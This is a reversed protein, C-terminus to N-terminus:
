VWTRYRPYLSCILAPQLVTWVISVKAIYGDSMFTDFVTQKPKRSATSALLLNNPKIDRHVIRLKHLHKVGEVVQRLITKSAELVATNSIGNSEMRSKIHGILDHLSMDCLELALYVFDGRVEKMFYRVVNPHGDSEILLSIERDASANYTKLMRKVAVQRNDLTGAYVVTGGGGHGLVITEDVQIVHDSNSAKRDRRRRGLEFSAVLLFLLLPPLWHSILHRSGPHRKQAQASEDIPSPGSEVPPRYPVVDSATAISLCTDDHQQSGTDCAPEADDEDHTSPGVRAPAVERTDYDVLNESGTSILPMAFLQGSGKIAGQITTTRFRDSNFTRGASLDAVMKVPMIRGTGSDMAAAVPHDLKVTWDNLGAQGAPTALLYLVNASPSEEASDLMMDHVSLLTSYSFQVDPQNPVHISVAMDVRGLWVWDQENREEDDSSVPPIQKHVAGTKTDVVCVTTDRTATFLRGRDVFPARSVLDEILATVEEEEHLFTDSQPSTTTLYVKGDIISPIATTKAARHRSAVSSSSVWPDLLPSADPARFESSHNENAKDTQEMRFSQKSPNPGRKWLITGTRKSVGTLTGDVTAIIIVSDRGPYKQFEPARKVISTDVESAFMDKPAYEETSEHDSERGLAHIDLNVISNRAPSSRKFRSDDDHDTSTTAEAGHAHISHHQQLPGGGAEQQDGESVTAARIRQLVVLLLLTKCFLLRSNLRGRAM